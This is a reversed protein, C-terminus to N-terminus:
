KKSDGAIGYAMDLHIAARDLPNKPPSHVDEIYASANSYFNDVSVGSLDGM